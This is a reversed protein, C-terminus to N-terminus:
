ASCGSGPSVLAFAPIQHDLLPDQQSRLALRAKRRVGRACTRARPLAGPKHARQRPALSTVDTASSVTDPEIGTRDTAGADTVTSAALAQVADDTLVLRFRAQDPRDYRIQLQLADYLKRQIPEPAQSINIGALIPVADLLEADRRPKVKAATAPRTVCTTRGATGQRGSCGSSVCDVDSM